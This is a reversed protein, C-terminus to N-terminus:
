DKESAAAGLAAGKKSEELIEDLDAMRTGIFELEGFLVDKLNNSEKIESFVTKVRLTSQCRGYLNKISQIIQTFERSIDKKKNVKETNEDEQSKVQSKMKEFEGQLRQLISTGVLLQNQKETRLNQLKKRFEDVKAELKHSQELLDSNAQKL